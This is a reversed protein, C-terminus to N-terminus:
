RLDLPTLTGNKIVGLRIPRPAGHKPITVEVWLEEGAPRQSPDSVHEPIFYAIPQTLAARRQGQREFGRLFLGNSRSAPVAVLVENRVQLDVPVRSQDPAPLTGDLPTVELQLRVYRGRIPLNPDYPAVRAWVRPRTMRDAVFKIGLGSVLAVHLIAVILGNRVGASM